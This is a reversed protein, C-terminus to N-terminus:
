RAARRARRRATGSDAATGRWAGAAIFATAEAGSMPKAFAYGQLVDCGLDRLIHAHELTEVGEGVVEIGLSKGIDIISAVLRRQGASETIPTVLQRDIKLRRPKLKMLSVISAYGTGFDDIEIDIGLDKIQDINFLVIDDSEDLFISEVLEFSVTGPRIQLGKLSEVLAEDQLRRASVNVSLHPVGLGAAEWEDFQKLAQELIMRDIVSVVNLEEAVGLFHGPAVVGEAPHRWRALAETGVVELTHADFQPQYHPLFQENELGHLIKDALRKTRVVESQLAESFFEHRNRGRSKARYLAIDANILVRSPDVQAGAEVAIGVSVGFRCEHGQYTVPQRMTTIIREALGALVANEGTGASVVVFEDGGIRALFDQSRINAKLVASAHKLMADGAAHGLTDNIQKFRDLDIHLLALHSGDAACESAFRRLVEDLYRRNPLGTLSDHLSNHEIRAKTAELEANRAESLRNAQKLNENLLVDETVDWNVGVIKRTEGPSEYVHGIARVWRMEGAPTVIRYESHYRGTVDIAIRFDEAAREFDDPHLRDRWHHYLRPGGDSPLGYIENMRDDWTLDDTEIDFEWVGVRSTELALGLRRSLKQLEAERRRLARLTNQREEMLRGGLIIPVVVLAGLLAIFGRLNWANPPTVDWGSKPVAAMVWLGTPLVVESIVPDSAFIEPEGFFQMGMGGLADKGVIGIRIPLDADLLGTDKYLRDVDIVAAVLGWLRRNPPDGAYIPFRGVFGQGGQVLDVPGALVMAGTQEVRLAAERQNPDTRYNLGIARENGELPYTMRIVFDPAVAISRLQTTMEEFLVSALGSFREQDMDLERSIAANLGRVLQLNANIAGELKARVVSMEALVDSRMAQRYVISNQHDAFLGVILLVLAAITAPVVSTRSFASRLRVFGLTLLRGPTM